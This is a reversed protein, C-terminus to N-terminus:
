PAAVSMVARADIRLLEEVRPDSTRLAYLRDGDWHPIMSVFADELGPLVRVAGSAVVVAVVVGRGSMTVLLGSTALSLDFSSALPIKAMGLIRGEPLSLRKTRAHPAVADVRHRYGGDRKRRDSASRETSTAYVHRGDPRFVPPSSESVEPIRVPAGKLTALCQAYSAQIDPLTRGRSAKAM